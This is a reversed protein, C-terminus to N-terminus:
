HTNDDYKFLFLIIIERHFNYGPMSSVLISVPMGRLQEFAIKTWVNCQQNVLYTSPLSGLIKRHIKDSLTHHKVCVITVFSQVDERQDTFYCM